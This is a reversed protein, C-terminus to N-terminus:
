EKEGPVAPEAPASEPAPGIVSLALQARQRVAEPAEFALTLNELTTRALELEGAEWAEVGLLERALYATAGESEILPELRARVAAFDQNEAVLYAARLRASDRLTNNGAAEAAADFKALAGDLDGQRALADAWQMLAMVRYVGPGETSLAEFASAAAAADGARLTEQAAAFEAGHARAQDIRWSDYLRWGGVLALIGVAAAAVYLGYKRAWAMWRDQRVQEEVEHLFTDTENTM